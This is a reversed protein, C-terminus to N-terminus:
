DRPGHESADGVRMFFVSKRRLSTRTLVIRDDAGTQIVEQLSGEILSDVVDLLLSKELAPIVHLLVYFKCFVNL